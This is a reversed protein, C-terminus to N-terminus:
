YRVILIDSDSCRTGGPREQLCVKIVQLDGYPRGPAKEEGPQAVGLERLRDEYSLQKLGRIIKATRRKRISWTNRTRPGGPRFM